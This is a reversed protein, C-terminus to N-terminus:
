LILPLQCDPDLSFGFCVPPTGFDSSERGDSTTLTNTIDRLKAKASAGDLGVLDNLLFFDCNIKEHSYSLDM